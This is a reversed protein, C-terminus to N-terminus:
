SQTANSLHCLEQAIDGMKALKARQKPIIHFLARPLSPYNALFAARAIRKFRNREPANGFKKSVTIGLKSHSTGILRMHLFFFSGEKRFSHKSFHRYESRKRFRLHSPLM